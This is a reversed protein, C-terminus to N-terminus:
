PEVRLDCEDIRQSWYDAAEQRTTKIPQREGM